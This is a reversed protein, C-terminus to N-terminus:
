GVFVGMKRASGAHLEQCFGMKITYQTRSWSIHACREQRIVDLTIHDFGVHLFGIRAAICVELRLCARKLSDGHVLVGDHFAIQGGAFEDALLDLRRRLFSHVRGLDAGVLHALADHLERERGVEDAVDHGNGANAVDEMGLHVADVDVEVAAELRGRALQEGERALGEHLRHLAALGVARFRVLAPPVVVVEQIQARRHFIGGLLEVDAVGGRRVVVAFTTTELILDEVPVEAVDAAVLLPVRM